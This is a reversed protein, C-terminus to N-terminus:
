KTKGSNEYFLEGQCLVCISREYSKVNLKRGTEMPMPIHRLVQAISFIRNFLLTNLQLSKTIQFRFVNKFRRWWSSHKGPLVQESPWFIELVARLVKNWNASKSYTKTLQTIYKIYVLGFYNYQLYQLLWILISITFIFGSWASSTAIVYGHTYALYTM